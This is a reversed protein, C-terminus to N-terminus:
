SSGDLGETTVVKYSYDIATKQRAMLLLRWKLSTATTEAPKPAVNIIEAEQPLTDTAELTAARDLNSEIKMHYTWTETTEKVTHNQGGSTIARIKETVNNDKLKRSVKLDASPGIVLSANTGSATYPMNITSVYDDNKYLLATGSPWPNKMTNNARIEEVVPGDEQNYADWTYVRVLPANQQFLPFGIEKDQALDKRGDLEFIYLTELEGTSSAAPAPALSLAEPSAAEATSRQQIQMPKYLPEVTSPLGAVLKLRVDKLDEGGRNRVVANANMLVSDNTLHLDYRPEWSGASYMLYSLAFDQPGSSSINLAYVPNSDYVVREVSANSVGLLVSSKDAADPINVVFKHEGVTTDLTGIRKVAMLGDPYITVSDVPLTIATTAEVGSTKDSVALALAPACVLLVLLAVFFKM